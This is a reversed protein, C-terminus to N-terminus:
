RAASARKLRDRVAAWEEDEPITEIVICTAGRDDAEHLASYLKSSYGERDLPLPLSPMADDWVTRVICVVQEGSDRLRRASAFVEPPEIILVRAKPAYHSQMQGPSTMAESADASVENVEVPGIVAEIQARTIPGPRLIVPKRKTLDIVTSELGHQTIGADIIGDIKGELGKLVHAASTPSVAGSPNASPAALPIGAEKILALAVPHSPMRIAVGKKGATVTDPIEKAKRVIMTLPGPWFSQALVTAKEPWTAALTRAQDVDAVHLIVPNTSPRGKAEYIKRVAAESLGNAGLGYVTETPFAILQGNRLLVAAATLDEPEFAQPDITWTRTM